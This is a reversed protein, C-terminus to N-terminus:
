VAPAFIGASVPKTTARIQLSEMIKLFAKLVRKVDAGSSPSDGAANPSSNIQVFFEYCNGNAYGAYDRVTYAAESTISDHERWYFPVSQILMKGTAPAVDSFLPAVFSRCDAVSAGPNIAFQLHGDLFTTNPFDDGPIVVAALLEIGPQDAALSQQHHLLPSDDDEELGEQLAYSRPYRFSVGYAPNHYVSFESDRAPHKSPVPAPAAAKEAAPQAPVSKAHSSHCGSLWLVSLLMLVFISSVSRRRHVM